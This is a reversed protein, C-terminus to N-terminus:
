NPRGVPPAQLQAIARRIRMWVLQGDRDGRELMIDARRTAEIEADAGHRRILLNAARYTDLDSIMARPTGPVIAPIGDVADCLRLFDWADREAAFYHLGGGASQVKQGRWLAIYRGGEVASVQNGPSEMDDGM